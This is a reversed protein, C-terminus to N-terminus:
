VSYAAMTFIRLTMQWVHNDAIHNELHNNFQRYFDGGMIKIEHLLMKKQNDSLQDYFSDYAMSCLSLITATNFDGAVNKNDSWSIIETIRKMAEDSYRKNQTLLYARILVETNAEEKDIINRSERVLLANRKVANDLGGVKSTDIQSVSYMPTRMVKEAREMYWQYEPASKSQQMFDKWEKKMVWVRPHDAPLKVLLKKLSPPCFKDPNEKVTFQLVESWDTKGGNVYGYQWYWVGVGLSQEPNHFPWLSSITIVNHKMKPDQSYRLQYKLTSKDIPKKESKMGDLLDEMTNAYSPLPWMFSVSKDSIVSKNLPSPTARMEHMLTVDTLKMAGQANMGLAFISWLLALYFNKKM